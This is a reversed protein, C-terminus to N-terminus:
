AGDFCKAERASPQSIISALGLGPHMVQVRAALHLPNNLSRDGARCLRHRRIDGSSTEVPATGTYSAYHHATAFRMIDGSHRLTKAALVDSIGFIQPLTSGSAAV